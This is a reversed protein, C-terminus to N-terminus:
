DGSLHPRLPDEQIRAISHKEDEEAVREDSTGVEEDERRSGLFLLLLLRVTKLKFCSANYNILNWYKRLM